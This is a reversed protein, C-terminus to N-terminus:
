YHAAYHLATSHLVTCHLKTCHLATCNLAACCFVPFNLATFKNNESKGLLLLIDQHQGATLNSSRQLLRQPPGRSYGQLLWQLAGGGRSHGRDPGGERGWDHFHERSYNQINILGYATHSPCHGTHLACPTIRPTCHATHLM